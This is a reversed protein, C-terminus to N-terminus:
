GRLKPPKQEPAYIIDVVIGRAGNVLGRTTWLNSRLMVVSGVSLLVVSQLGHADDASAKKATSNNHKAEIRAIPRGLRLFRQINYNNVMAKTPYIRVAIDFPLYELDEASRTVRCLLAKWDDPTVEGDAIRDLIGIYEQDQAQRHL